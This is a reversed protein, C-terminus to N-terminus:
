GTRIPNSSGSTSREEYKEPRHLLWQTLKVLRDRPFLRLKLVREQTSAPLSYFDTWDTIM